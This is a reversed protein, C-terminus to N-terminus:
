CGRSYFWLNPQGQNNYAPVWFTRGLVETGDCRGKTVQVQIWLHDQVTKTALVSVDLQSQQVKPDLGPTPGPPVSKPEAKVTALKKPEKFEQGDWNANLFTMSEKLLSEYSRFTGANQPSLWGTGFTGQVLLWGNKQEFVIASLEEYAHELTKLDNETKVTGITKSTKSPDKYLYFQTKEKQLKLGPPGQPDQVGILKELGVLGKFTQPKAALSWSLLFSFILFCFPM